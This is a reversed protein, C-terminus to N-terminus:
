GGSPLTRGVVRADRVLRAATLNHKVFPARPAVKQAHLLDAEGAVVDNSLLMLVARNSYAIAVFNKYRDRSGQPWSPALVRDRRAVDIAADCTTRAAAWDRSAIQAVCLNTLPLSAIATPRKLQQIEAIAAAPEGDLLVAGGPADTFVTLYLPSSAANVCRPKANPEQRLFSLTKGPRGAGRFVVRYEPVCAQAQADSGVVDTARAFSCLSALLLVAGFQLRISSDM